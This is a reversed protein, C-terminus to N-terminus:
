TRRLALIAIDDRPPGEAVHLAEREIADVIATASSGALGEVLLALREPELVREPAGADLVGDTYLVIADGRDLRVDVDEFPGTGPVGLLPGRGKVAEVTGDARLVLVPPHGGNAVTLSQDDGGLCAQVVSMLNGGNGQRLIAENTMQLVKAPQRQVIVAARMTHRALSTLAAAEPGKGCVDGVIISWSGTPTEFVDYFDGGVDYGQGAARYRAALDFGPISPLLPPLLSRQLTQAVHSREAYLRANEIAVSARRAVEMGLVLDDQDYHVGSEATIFTIAGVSEGHIRLPCIMASVLGVGLLLQLHEEDVAVARLMEEPFHEFLAPEGTRMSAYAGIPAAPDPPYREQLERAWREKDPDVHTVALRRLTGDAALIDVACWDAKEPVAARAVRRLTEEYDLSGGLLEGARALFTARQEAREARRRARREAELLQVRETVEVLAVGLGLIRDDPDRVPYYSALWDRRGGSAGARSVQADVVPRGTRLVRELDSTIAATDQEPLLEALTHGRHEDAAIGHIEALAENCRVFRLHTDLFGLGVPATAFLTDVLARSEEREREAVKVETVDEFSLVAVPEGAADEITDAAVLLSHVGDLLHWDMEFGVLREGRAARVGPMEDNPIRRGDADTCYYLEHYREATAGKPFEGGALRDAAENSFTVRGTGPEILLIPTPVSDLTRALLERALRGAVAGLEDSESGTGGPPM